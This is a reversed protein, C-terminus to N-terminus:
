AFEDERMELYRALKERAAAERTPIHETPFLSPAPTVYKLIRKALGIQHVETPGDVLGQAAAKTWLAGLPLENSVGLSGHLQISRGVIDKLIRPSMIKVAGIGVKGAERDGQDITWAAHLVLLRFQMLEVYSDAVAALTSQKDALRGGQTFRSVAREKMMEYAKTAAGLTRMAHHIRGGGLRVQAVEFAGGEPGLLADAPIRVNDYHIYGHAGEDRAEGMLGTNRLINVGPTGAPVLFMSFRESAPAGPATVTMVILFSAWLAQSSFWKYGNIVWEDGDHVATTEFVRPDSGGQPETMSFCSVIEGALLPALYRQKQEATGFKALIEANGSDPAQCGFVRPGWKTAGLIENMLALKIQGYGQGGLEPRLHCAWLGQRRVEEQLPRAAALARKDTVDFNHGPRNFVLDLPEIEERVFRKMWDLKAQFEPETSFDWM